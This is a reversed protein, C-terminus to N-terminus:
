KEDIDWDIGCLPASDELLQLEETRRELLERMIRYTEEIFRTVADHVSQHTTCPANVFKSQYYYQFCGCDAMAMRDPTWSYPAHKKCPRTLPFLGKKTGTHDSECGCGFVHM